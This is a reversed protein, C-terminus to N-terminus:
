RFRINLKWVQNEERDEKTCIATHADVDTGLVCM